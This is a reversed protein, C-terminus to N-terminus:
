FRSGGGHDHHNERAQQKQFERQERDLSEHLERTFEKWRNNVERQTHDVEEWARDPTIEAPFMEAPRKTDKVKNWNAVADVYDQVAKNYRAIAGALSPYKAPLNGPFSVTDGGSAAPGGATGPNGAPQRDTAGRDPMKGARPDHPVHSEFVHVPLEIDTRAQAVVPAVPCMLFLVASLSFSKRMPKREAGGLARRVESTRQLGACIGSPIQPIKAYSPNKDAHMRFDLSNGEGALLGSAGSDNWGM